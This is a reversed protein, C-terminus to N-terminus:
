AERVHHILRALELPRVDFIGVCFALTTDSQSYQSAMSDFNLLSSVVFAGSNKKIKTCTAGSKVCFGSRFSCPFRNCVCNIVRHGSRFAMEVNETVKM